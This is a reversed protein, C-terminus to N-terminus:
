VSAMRRRRWAALGLVALGAIMAYTSPEPVPTGTYVLDLNNGDQVVSWMGTFSNTFGGFDYAFAEADFGVIGDSTQAFTFSYNANPDFDSVEGALGGTTFSGLFITFPDGSNATLTLTGNVNLLDWGPNQGPVDNGNGVTNIKWQLMGGGEFTTAGAYLVGTAGDGPALTGGSAITLAGVTGTGSLTGENSVTTLSSPQISGTVNLTGAHIETAGTYTNSGSLTLKGTGEKTLSGGAGGYLGGDQIAGSITKDGAIGGYVLNNGGLFVNGSGEISGISISGSHPSVTLSGNDYVKVTASSGTSDDYFRIDGGTGGNTGGNAILTSSGADSTQNFYVVGGGAPGNGDSATGGNVTITASGATAGFYFRVSGGEAGGATGGNTIFTGQDASAANEFSIYGGGAGNAEGGNTTFTATGATAGVGQLSYGTNAVYDTFYIRGGGAGAVAGGNTTFTAQAASTGSWFEVNGGEGTDATGGNTTFNASAASSSDSFIIYGGSGGSATAGNTIFTASGATAANNFLTVGMTGSAGGGHTTITANGASSGDNFVTYGGRMGSTSSGENTIQASGASATDSFATVGGFAAVAQSSENTITGTAASSSDHFITTGGGASSTDSGGQNTFTASGAQSANFFQTIGGGYSSYQNTDANEGNTSGRNTFTTNDGATATNYFSITGLGYLFGPETDAAFNQTNGSSNVIGAGSITLTTNSPATITYANAGSAFAIGDVEADASLSIATVSTFDFTATDGPGNPFTVATSWNGATNWDGTGPDTLWTASQAMVPHASLTLFLFVGCLTPFINRGVLSDSRPTKM